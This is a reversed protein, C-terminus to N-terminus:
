ERWAADGTGHLVQILASCGHRSVLTRLSESKGAAVIEEWQKHSLAAPCETALLLDYETRLHLLQGDALEQLPLSDVMLPIVKGKDDSIGAPLPYLPEAAKGPQATAPVIALHMWLLTALGAHEAAGVYGDGKGALYQRALSECRAIERQRVVRLAADKRVPAFADRGEYIWFTVARYPRVVGRDVGALSPTMM